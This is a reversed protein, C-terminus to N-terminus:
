RQAWKPVKPRWTPVRKTGRPVRKAGKPCVKSAVEAMKFVRRWFPRLYWKKSASKQGRKSFPTCAIRGHRRLGFVCKPMIESGMKWVEFFCSPQFPQPSEGLADQVCRLYPPFQSADSPSPHGHSTLPTKSTFQALNM